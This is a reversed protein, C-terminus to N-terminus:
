VFGTIISLGIHFLHPCVDDNFPPNLSDEEAVVSLLRSESKPDLTPNLVAPIATHLGNKFTILVKHIPDDLPAM